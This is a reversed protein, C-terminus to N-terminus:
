QCETCRAAGIFLQLGLVEDESFVTAQREADDNLVADVYTDFRTPQPLLTSEYAAVTKGINAFARNVARRDTERDLKTNRAFVDRRDAFNRM